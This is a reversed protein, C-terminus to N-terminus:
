RLVDEYAEMTRRVYTEASFEERARKQGARGFRRRLESDSLLRNLARALAEPDAPPVVLGTEGHQVVVSTGTGLETCVV